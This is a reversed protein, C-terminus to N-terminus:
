DSLLSLHKLSNEVPFGDLPTSKSMEETISECHLSSFDFNYSSILRLKQMFGLWEISIIITTAASKDYKSAVTKLEYLLSTDSGEASEEGEGLELRGKSIALIVKRTLFQM